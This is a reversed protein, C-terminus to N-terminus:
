EVAVPHLLSVKRKCGHPLAMLPRVDGLGGLKLDVAHLFFIVVQLSFILNIGIKRGDQWHTGITQGKEYTNGLNLMNIKRGQAITM